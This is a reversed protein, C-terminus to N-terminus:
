KKTNAKGTKADQKQDRPEDVPQGATEPQQANPEPSLDFQEGTASTVVGVDEGDAGDYSPTGASNIKPM